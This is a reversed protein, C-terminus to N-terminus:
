GEHEPKNGHLSDSHTNNKEYKKQIAKSLSALGGIAVIAALIYSLGSYDTYEKHREALFAIVWIAILTLEVVLLIVFALRMSSQNGSDDNLLKQPM